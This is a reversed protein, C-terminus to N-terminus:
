EHEEEIELIWIHGYSDNYQYDYEECLLIADLETKINSEFVLKRNKWLMYVTYM